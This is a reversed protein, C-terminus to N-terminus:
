LKIQKMQVARCPLCFSWVRNQGSSSCHFVMCSRGENQREKKQHLLFNTNIGQFASGPFVWQIENMKKQRVPRHLSTYFRCELMDTRLLKWFVQVLDLPLPTGNCQLYLLLTSKDALRTLAHGATHRTTSEQEHKQREDLNRDRGVRAQAETERGPEQRQWSKSMSRDRMWNGTEALEQKHKQREDLKRDRGVRAQAETEQGPEQRQWSESCRRCSWGPNRGSSKRRWHFKRQCLRSVFPITWIPLIAITEDFWRAVAENEFAKRLWGGWGVGGLPEELLGMIRQLLHNPGLGLLNTTRKLAWVSTSANTQLSDLHCDPNPIILTIATSDYVHNTRGGIKVCSVERGSESAKPPWAGELLGRTM